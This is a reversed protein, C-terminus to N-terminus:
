DLSGLDPIRSGPHGEFGLATALEAASPVHTLRAEQARGDEDLFRVRVETESALECGVVDLRPVRVYDRDGGLLTAPRVAALWLDAETLVARWGRRFTPNDGTPTRWAIAIDLPAYSQGELNPLSARREIVRRWEAYTWASTALTAAAGWLPAEIWLPLAALGAALPFIPGSVSAIPKM